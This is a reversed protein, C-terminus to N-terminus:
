EMCHRGEVKEAGGTQGSSHTVAGCPVGGVPSMGGPERIGIIDFRQFQAVAKPVEQKNRMSCANTYFYQLHEIDYGVGGSGYQPLAPKRLNQYVTGKSIVPWDSKTGRGRGSNLARDVPGVLVGTSSSKKGRKLLPLRDPTLLGCTSYIM